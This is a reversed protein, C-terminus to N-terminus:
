QPMIITLKITSMPECFVYSVQLNNENLMNLNKVMTFKIELVTRVTVIFPGHRWVKFVKKHNLSYIQLIQTDM